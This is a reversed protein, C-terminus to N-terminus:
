IDGAVGLLSWLLPFVYFLEWQKGDVTYFHKCCRGSNDCVAFVLDFQQAGDVAPVAIYANTNLHIHPQNEGEEEFYSETQIERQPKEEHLFPCNFIPLASLRLRM